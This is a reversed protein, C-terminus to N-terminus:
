TEAPPGGALVDLFFDDRGVQGGKFVVELGDVGRNPAIMRCLPSGPAMPAVYDLAEVDLGRAVHTSTDGGCIAIRSLAAQPLINRLLRGLIQGLFEASRTVNRQKLAATLEPIRPDDPGNSTHLIVSKGERLATMAEATVTQFEDRSTEPNLILNTSLPLAVFGAQVARQIQRQTVPSCSGSVTLLQRVPKARSLSHPPLAGAPWGHAALAYELGSSGVCFLIRHQKVLRELIEGISRLHVQNLTDFLLIPPVPDPPATASFLSKQWSGSELQLLDILHIPLSTQRSLHIRLDAEDMPTIPHRQMTPHRDLRAPESDLGSRAFLNGFAMYRGLAPAGVVLPTPMPGFIRQGIEIAAGISGANPSSDFTSCIKYHVIPAGSAKLAAFAPPLGTQMEEPSMTRSGGAIGFAQLGPVRALQAPGPPEVFLVTKVGQRALAEMVDTSGTFDDGYYALLINPAPPM